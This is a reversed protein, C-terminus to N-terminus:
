PSKNMKTFVTENKQMLKKLNKDRIRYLTMISNKCHISDNAVALRIIVNVNTDEIHKIVMATNINKSDKLIYDPKRIIEEIKNFYMDLDEKHRELIHELRESTLVVEDTIIETSIEKFKDIDIKGININEEM